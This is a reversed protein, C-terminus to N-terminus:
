LAEHWYRVSHLFSQWSEPMTDPDYRLVPSVQGPLYNPAFPRRVLHMKAEEPTRNAKRHNCEICAVVINEWKTKGGRSQPIVHDYTFDAKSCRSGCYQCTGADRLWVNHRNFRVRRKRFVARSLYRIISPMQFTEQASRILRDTYTDVVEARGSLVACLADMWPIKNIPMYASNLVLVQEMARM